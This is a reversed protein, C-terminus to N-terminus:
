DAKIPLSIIFRTRKGLESEVKIEGHHAEIINKCLYLGLGFGEVEKSRSKDARYFPEFINKLEMDEIGIGSDEVQIEIKDNSKELKLYVDNKSYKLANDMINVLVLKMKERDASTELNTDVKEFQLRSNGIKSIVEDILESVNVKEKSLSIIDKGERYSGLLENIMREMEVVDERIKENPSDVELGLKIRTLPTRLDHSVNILLQEKHFISQKIKASMEKLSTALEGLEDKRNTNLEVDYNGDGIQRVAASLKKIPSLMRRLVFYLSTILLTMFLVSFIVARQEDFLDKPDLPQIIFVGDPIKIIVYEKGQYFVGTRPHPHSFREGFDQEKMLDELNPIQESSTWNFDRTQIRMQWNLDDCFRRAKLTDPPLGIEEIAIRELNRVVEPFKKRIKLSSSFRVVLFESLNFLIGFGIFILILKFFISSRLKKM